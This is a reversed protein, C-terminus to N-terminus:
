EAAYNVSVTADPALALLKEGLTRATYQGLNFKTRLTVGQYEFSVGWMPLKGTNDEIFLNKSPQLADAIEAKKLAIRATAAKEWVDLALKEIKEDTFAKEQMSALLPATLKKKGDNADLLVRRAFYAGAISHINDMLFDAIQELTKM